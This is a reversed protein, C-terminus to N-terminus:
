TSVGVVCSPTSPSDGGGLLLLLVVVVVVVVGAVGVIGVGGVGVVVLVVLVVLVLLLWCWWCWCCGCCCGRYSNSEDSQELMLYINVDDLCLLFSNGYANQIHTEFYSFVDFSNITGEMSFFVYGVM